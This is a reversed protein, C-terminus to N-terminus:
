SLHESWFAAMEQWAERGEPTEAMLTQFVHPMAEYLELRSEGGAARLRRHLRVADSLLMERTGVQILTPPFGGTFDGHVPSVLPDVWDTPDAYAGLIALRDMDGLFDAALLTQNTDGSGALDTLPSVLLLARPLPEGRNKLDLTMAAAICGGASDGILGPPTPEIECIGRWAAIAEDLIARWQKRPALTYDISYVVRRARQAALAAFLLRSRASGEVFAGGHLYVIAGQEIAGRPTVRLTPTGGPAMETVQPDLAALPVAGIMEAFEAAAAAATDFDAQTRPTPRPPMAAIVSGIRALVAAAEPSVSAPLFLRPDDTM